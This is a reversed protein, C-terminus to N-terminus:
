SEVERRRLKQIALGNTIVAAFVNLYEAPPRSAISRDSFASFPQTRILIRARSTKPTRMPM